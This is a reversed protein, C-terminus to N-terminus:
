CGGSDIPVVNVCMFSSLCHLIVWIELAKLVVAPLHSSFNEPSCTQPELRQAMAVCRDALAVIETEIDFRAIWVRRVLNLGIDKDVEPAPLVQAMAQLGQM